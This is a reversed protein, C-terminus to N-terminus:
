MIFLSREFEFNASIFQSYSEIYAIVCDVTASDARVIIHNSRYIM